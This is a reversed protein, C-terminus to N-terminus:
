AISNFSVFKTSRLGSAAMGRLPPALTTNGVKADKEAAKIQEFVEKCYEPDFVGEGQWLCQGADDKYIEWAAGAEPQGLEVCTGSPMHWLWTVEPKGRRSKSVTLEYGFDLDASKVSDGDLDEDDDEPEDGSTM